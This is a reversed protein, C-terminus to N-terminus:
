KTLLMKRTLTHNGTTLKYLYVGSSLSTGDVTVRYYGAIQQGDMLALVERGLMDYLKLTVYGDEPIAVLISTTPNLPNPYNSIDYETPCASLSAFNKM